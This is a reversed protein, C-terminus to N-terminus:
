DIIEFGAATFAKALDRYAIPLAMRADQVSHIGLGARVIKDTIKVQTAAEIAANVAFRDVQCPDRNVDAAAERARQRREEIEWASM